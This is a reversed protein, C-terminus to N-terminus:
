SITCSSLAVMFVAINYIIIAIPSIFLSIVSKRITSGDDRKSVVFIYKFIRVISLIFIGYSSILLIFLLGSLIESVDKLQDALLLMLGLLIFGGGLLSLSVRLFFKEFYNFSKEKESM